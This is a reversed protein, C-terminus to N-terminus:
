RSSRQIEETSSLIGALSYSSTGIAADLIKEFTGYMGRCYVVFVSLVSLSLVGGKYSVVSAM